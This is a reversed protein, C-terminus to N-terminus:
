EQWRPAAIGTVVIGSQCPGSRAGSGPPACPLRAAPAPRSAVLDLAPQASSAPGAEAREANPRSQTVKFERSLSDVIIKPSGTGKSDVKGRIVIVQELTLWRSVDKWTRPFVVLELHGQLDEM